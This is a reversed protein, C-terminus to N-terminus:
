KHSEIKNLKNVIDQFVASISQMGDVQIVKNKKRFYEIVPLTEKKFIKLRKKIGEATDDIRQSIKGGCKPCNERSSKIDIGMIFYNGCQQCLFRKSIRKIAEEDTINIFIVGDIKRGYEKLKEEIFDAQEMIRPAGDIILGKERPLSNIEMKFIESLIWNPVLGKKVNQIEYIKKGLPTNLKAIERLARGVDIHELNFREALMKAQTGKGSGQPGLISINL